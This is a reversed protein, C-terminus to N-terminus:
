RDRTLLRPAERHAEGGDVVLTEGNCWESDSSVLFLAARAIDDPQGARGLPISDLYAARSKPQTPATMPTEVFGPAIANVRVGRPGLELAAVRTLMEVGAKACCYAAMGEGPQRGYISALNVIVGGNQQELMAKAEHKVAYFVGTLCVDIVCTWSEASLEHIPGLTGVGASNIAIDIKGFEDCALRVLRELDPERAVDVVATACRRVGITQRVEGLLAENRDGIVIQAGEEAFLQATRRGIGSAGGTLVAVRGTLRNSVTRGTTSAV